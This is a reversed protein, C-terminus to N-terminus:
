QRFGYLALRKRKKRSVEDEEDQAAENAEATTAGEKELQKERRKRNKSM